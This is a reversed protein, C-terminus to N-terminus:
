DLPQSTVNHSGCDACVVVFGRGHSGQRLQLNEISNNSKNGDKHHVTESPLLPRGLSLALVLRHELCCGKKRKMAIGIDGDEPEITVMVYGDPTFNKRRSFLEPTRSRKNPGRIPINNDNIIKNVTRQSINYKDAIKQIRMWELYDKIVEKRKLDDIRNPHLGAMTTGLM